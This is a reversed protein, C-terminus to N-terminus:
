PPPFIAAWSPLAEAPVPFPERSPFAVPVPEDAAACTPWDDPAPFWPPEESVLLSPAVFPLVVSIEAVFPAVTEPVFPVGGVGGEGGFGLLQHCRKRSHIPM